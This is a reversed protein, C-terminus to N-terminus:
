RVGALGPVVAGHTLYPNKEEVLQGYFTHHEQYTMLVVGAAVGSATAAGSIAAAWAPSVAPEEAGLCRPRRTVDRAGM